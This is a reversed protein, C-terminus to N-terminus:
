SVYLTEERISAVRDDDISAEIRGRTYEREEDLICWCTLRYLKHQRGKVQSLIHKGVARSLNSVVEILSCTLRPSDFNLFALSDPPGAPIRVGSRRSEEVVISPRRRIRVLGRARRRIGESDQISRLLIKETVHWERSANTALSSSSTFRPAIHDQQVLKERRTM